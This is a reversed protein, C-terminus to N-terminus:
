DRDHGHESPRGEFRGQGGERKEQPKGHWGERWDRDKEWYRNHEWTAWNKTLQGYPIRRWGRPIQHYDPPLQVLAPPVRPDPVYIWPGNYSRANFWRGQYLRYWNGSYFFIDAEIEPVVYVYTGPIVVVSPPAAIRYPPPAGIHIGVGVQAVGPLPLVILPVCLLGVFLVVRKLLKM